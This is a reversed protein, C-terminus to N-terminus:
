LATWYSDDCIRDALLGFASLTEPNAIPIPAIDDDSILQERWQLVPDLPVEGLTNTRGIDHKNALRQLEQNYRTLWAVQVARLGNLAPAAPDLTATRVFRVSQAFADQDHGSAVATAIIGRAGYVLDAAALIHQRTWRHFVLWRSVTAPMREPATAALACDTAYSRGASLDVVCLDYKGEITRLLDACRDVVQDTRPFEGSGSDGPYLDLRGAGPPPDRLGDIDSSLWVDIPEPIGARGQLYSHLGGGPRGHLAEEIGFLVGATPSGFDFDLYCVDRGRLASRYVINSSTVSRGTGGKDSTAFALM